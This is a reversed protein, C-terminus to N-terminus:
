GSNTKGKGERQGLPHATHARYENRAHRLNSQFAARVSGSVDGYFVERACTFCYGDTLPELNVPYRTSCSKCQHFTLNSLEEKSLKLMITETEKVFDALTSPKEM